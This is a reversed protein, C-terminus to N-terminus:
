GLGKTLLEHQADVMDNYTYQPFRARMGDSPKSSKGHGIGDPLIVYYKSTDLLQGAGFLEGAFTRSMFGGGSGGTGHLVLVANWVVGGPDPKPKGLPIYHLRGEPLKPGTEFKFNKAVYDDGAPVQPGQSGLHASAAVTLAGLWHLKMITVRFSHTRPY